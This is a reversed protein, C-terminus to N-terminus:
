GGLVIREFDSRFRDPCPLQEHLQWWRELNNEAVSLMSITETTYQRALLAEVISRFGDDDTRQLGRRLLLWSLLCYYDDYGVDPEVKDSLWEIFSLFPPALKACLSPDLATHIVMHYFESEINVSWQRRKNCYVYVAAAYTKMWPTYERLRDIGCEYLAWQLEMLDTTPFLSRELIQVFRQIPFDNPPSFGAETRLRQFEEASIQRRLITLFDAAQTPRADFYTM